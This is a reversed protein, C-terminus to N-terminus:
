SSDPTNDISAKMLPTYVQQRSLIPTDVAAMAGYYVARLTSLPPISSVTIYCVPYPCFLPFPQRSSPLCTRDIVIVSSLILFKFKFTQVNFTSRDCVPSIYQICGYRM